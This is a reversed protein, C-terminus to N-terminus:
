LSLMLDKVQQAVTPIELIKKIKKESVSSIKFFHVHSKYTSKIDWLVVSHKILELLNVTSDKLIKVCLM